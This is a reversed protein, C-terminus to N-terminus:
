DRPERMDNPHMGYRRGRDLADLRAMQAGTLAFDFIAANAALRETHTSKPILVDGRQLHWRLVVQAASRGVEAALAALELDGLLRARALPSWAQTVIGQSRHYARLADQRLYPHIEVQNVAPTVGTASIITELHEPEFNSVGIARVRGSEQLEIMAQWTEVLDLGPSTALPWHVLFLDLYDLGLAKLSADFTRFVDDRRHNPNNLKSTIFLEARPLGSDAVARGVGAENAYMQATDVHRYGLELAALVCRTVDDDPIQYTGLGLQPILVPQGGTGRTLPLLPVPLTTCVPVCSM